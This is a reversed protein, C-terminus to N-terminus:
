AEVRCGSILKFVSGAYYRCFSASYATLVLNVDLFSPFICDPMCSRRVEYLSPMVEKMLGAVLQPMHHVASYVMLLAANRVNLAEQDLLKLFSPMFLSLQSADANGAIALKLSTAVTWCVLANKKSVEDGELVHGGEAAIASHESVLDQLKKLMLAPQLCTLSGLCEAVMTRVGEESDATHEILHPLIVPVFPAIGDGGSLQHCQIFERLASLLLYKKKQTNKDLADLIAPLFVTQAGFSARGLAYAAAHKVEESPSDDFSSMYIALFRDAVQPMSSLDVVRGLDGSVLLSLQVQHAEAEGELSTLIDSIVGERNAPTTSATIVAICKALNSLGHKGLTQDSSDLRGHLMQRLESFEIANSVVLQELLALLSDLALDQLLPSSSLALAPPLVHTNVAPGCASCVKLISISVRSFLPFAVHM